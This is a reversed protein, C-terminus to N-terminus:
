QEDKHYLDLFLIKNEERLYLYSLRYPAIYFERTGKRAYKMPKEIEPNDVIKAIHKKIKEKMLGDKIKRIKKEFLPDFSVDVM